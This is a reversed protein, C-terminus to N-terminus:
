HQWEGRDKREPTASVAMPSSLTSVNTPTFEVIQSSFMASSPYEERPTRKALQVIGGYSDSDDSTRREKLGHGQRLECISQKQNTAATISVSSPTEDRMHVFCPM